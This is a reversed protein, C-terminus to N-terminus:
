GDSKIHGASSPHDVGLLIYLGRTQLDKGKGGKGQRSPLVVMVLAMVMVMMM